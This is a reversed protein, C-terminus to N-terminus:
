CSTGAHHTGMDTIFQEIIDRHVHPMCVIRIDGRRTTSVRWPAPIEKAGKFTAVNVDPTAARSFGFTELGEILRETNRMCGQVVASMGDHGLYELVALAGAVPGGPRTGGLTFEQKVTLYPTDVSLSGLVERDRVLLCGAPITSMGMKHPDVALSSVGPINFDFPIPKELFPIM